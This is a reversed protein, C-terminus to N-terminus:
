SLPVLAFSGIPASFGGGTKNFVATWVHDELTLVIGNLTGEATVVTDKAKVTITVLSRVSATEAWEFELHSVCGSCLATRRGKEYFVFRRNEWEEWGTPLRNQRLFPAAIEFELRRKTDVM